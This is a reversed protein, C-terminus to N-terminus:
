QPSQYQGNLFRCGWGSPFIQDRRIWHENGYDAVPFSVKVLKGKTEIVPGCNTEDGDRLKNRFAAVVKQQEAHEQALKKVKKQDALVVYKEMVKRITAPNIAWQGQQNIFGTEGEIKVGALGEHFWDVEDFQPNIVIEGGKGIFGWKGDTKVAALGESFSFANEYRPPIVLKGNMDIFGAKGNVSVEAIGDIFDSALDFQPEIVVSGTTNIYGGKSNREVLALGGSFSQASYLQPAIVLKGTKNIYGM